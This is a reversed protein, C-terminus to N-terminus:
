RRARRGTALFAGFFGSAAGLGVIGLARAASLTAVEVSGFVANAVSEVPQALVQQLGWMMALAVLAAALGLVAGEVLLPLRLLRDRAALLEYVKADAREDGARLAMACFCIFTCVVLAVAVALSAAARLGGALQSLDDIWQGVLEVDAIGDTALLREVMPHALAVDRVGPAFGIEISVPLATSDIGDMLEAGLEARLRQHAEAALVLEAWEVADLSRLASHIEEARADSVDPELFVVASTGHQWGHAWRDVNDAAWMAMAVLVLAMAMVLATMSARGSRRRM